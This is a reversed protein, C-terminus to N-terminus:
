NRDNPSLIYDEIKRYLTSPSINLMKAAEAKNWKATILAKQIHLREFLNLDFSSNGGKADQFPYSLVEYPLTEESLISGASLIVSREIINKLERINGKWNYNMLMREYERTIGTIHKGLKQSFLRAFYETLLLIDRKRERLPPLQISFTNLRYFLDERFHGMGIESSLDRNTASILRINVRSTKNDGVKIFEGTELVRLLRSQLDKDIEGVEDLFLTGGDAVELLGKKDRIAGTFAGARYGFLESELLERSFSSCNIAVFSGSLRTSSNHIARAFLEKGTGTEGLLLVSADSRSVKKALEVAERILESEGVINNFNFITEAHTEPRSEKRGEKPSFGAIQDKITQIVSHVDEGKIIYDAVGNKFSKVCNEIDPYGTLIVTQISPYRMKIEKAFSSGNGDPLMADLLVFQIDEKELIVSSTQLDHSRFVEYGELSLFRGLLKCFKLDDDVILVKHM